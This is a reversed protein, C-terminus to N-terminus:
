GGPQPETPAGARFAIIEQESAIQRELKRSGSAASLDTEIQARVDAPANPGYRSIRALARNFEYLLFGGVGASDRLEIAKTLENEAGQLDPHTQDKLAYGLQGHSRHFPHDGESAILARFVPITREMKDKDREYTTTRQDQARLFLQSKLVPSAAAVAADLDSQSIPPAGPEPELQRSVLSLAELDSQEQTKQAKAIEGQVVKALTDRDAQAFARPLYIRTILYFSLFGGVSSFVLLAAAFAEGIAGGGLAPGLFRVLDGARSAFATFQVLGVGVLIKTLWDSIQELNTNPSYRPDGATDPTPQALSRPIGFLFGIFGGAFWAAAAVLTSVALMKWDRWGYVVIALLAVAAFAIVYIPWRPPTKAGVPQDGVATL